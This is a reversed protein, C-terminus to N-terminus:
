LVTQHLTLNHRSLRLFPPGKLPVLELQGSELYGLRVWHHGFDLGLAKKPGTPKTRPPPIETPEDFGHDAPPAARGVEVGIIKAVNALMPASELGPTPAGDASLVETAADLVSRPFNELAGPDELDVLAAEVRPDRASPAEPVPAPPEPVPERPPPAERAMM